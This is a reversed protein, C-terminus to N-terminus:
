KRHFLLSGIKRIGAVKSGVSIAPSVFKDNMFAVTGKVNQVTEKTTNLIPRIETRLLGTLASLQYILVFISGILILASTASVVIAINKVKEVTESNAFIMITILATILIVIVIAAILWRRGGSSGAGDKEPPQQIYKYNTKDATEQETM